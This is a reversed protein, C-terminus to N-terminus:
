QLIDKRCQANKAEKNSILQNIIGPNIEPSEIRNLQDINRNKHHYGLTKIGLAKYDLKFDLKFYAKNYLHM